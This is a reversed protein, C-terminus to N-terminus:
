AKLKMLFFYRAKGDDGGMLIFGEDYDENLFFGGEDMTFVGVEALAKVQEPLNDIDVEREIEPDDYPNIGHVTVHHYIRLCQSLSNTARASYLEKKVNMVIGPTQSPESPMVFMRRYQIPQNGWRVRGSGFVSPSSFLDSLVLTTKMVPLLGKYGSMLRDLTNQSLHLKGGHSLSPWWKGVSALAAEPTLAQMMPPVAGEIDSPDSRGVEVFRAVFEDIRKVSSLGVIWPFVRMLIRSQHFLKPSDLEAISAGEIHVMISVPVGNYECVVSSGNDSMKIKEKLPQTEEFLSTAEERSPLDEPAIVDKKKLIFPDREPINVIFSRRLSPSSAAASGGSASGGSASGGSGRPNTPLVHIATAKGRNNVTQGVVNFIREWPQEHYTRSIGGVGHIDELCAMMSHCFETLAFPFIFSEEDGQFWRIPEFFTKRLTEFVVIGVSNKKTFTKYYPAQHYPLFLTDQIERGHAIKFFHINVRFIDELGALHKFADIHDRPVRGDPVEQAFTTSDYTNLHLLLKDDSFDEDNDDEIDMCRRLASGITNDKTSTRLFSGGPVANNLIGGLVSGLESFRDIDPIVTLTTLVNTRKEKDTPQRGLGTCHYRPPANEAAGEDVVVNPLKICHSKDGVCMVKFQNAEVFREQQGPFEAEWENVEDQSIIAPQEPCPIKRSVQAEAGDRGVIKSGMGFRAYFNNYSAIKSRLIPPFERRDIMEALQAGGNRQLWSIYGSIISIVIGEAARAQSSASSIRIDVKNGGPLIVLRQAPNMITFSFKPVFSSLIDQEGPFSFSCQTSSTSLIPLHDESEVGVGLFTKFERSTIPLPTSVPLTATLIDSDEVLRWTTNPLESQVNRIFEGRRSSPGIVESEGELPILTMSMDGQSIFLSGVPRTPFVEQQFLTKSLQIGRESTLMLSIRKPIPAGSFLCKIDDADPIRQTGSVRCSARIQTTQTKKGIILKNDTENFGDIISIITALRERVADEEGIRIIMEKETRVMIEETTGMEAIIMTRPAPDAATSLLLFVCKVEDPPVRLTPIRSMLGRFTQFTPPNEGKTLRSAVETSVLNRFKKGDYFVFSSTTKLEGGDALDVICAGLYSADEFLEMFHERGNENMM